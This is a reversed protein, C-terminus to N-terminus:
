FLYFSRIKKRTKLRFNSIIKTKFLLFTLLWYFIFFGITIAFFRLTQFHIAFAKSISFNAL